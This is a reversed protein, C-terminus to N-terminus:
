SSLTAINRRILDALEDAGKEDRSSKGPADADRRLWEKFGSVAKVADTRSLGKTRLTAEIERFDDATLDDLSKVAFVQAQENMPFTVLSIEYLDFEKIVRARKRGDYSDSKTRGGISLGTLAGSKLDIHADKGIQKETLLRGKVRLGNEDEQMETWVGVRAKPDHDALMKVGKAGRAKLSKAFAGPAVIDGGQDKNGFISAYGEFVGSEEAAKLEFAFSIRDM